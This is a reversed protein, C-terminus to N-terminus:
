LTIQSLSSSIIEPSGALPGNDTILKDPIDHCALLQLKCHVIVEKSTATDFIFLDAGVQSRPRDSVEHSLLPEKANNRQYTCCIQCNAVTDQAQM